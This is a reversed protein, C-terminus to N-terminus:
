FRISLAYYFNNHKLLNNQKDSENENNNILYMLANKLLFNIVPGAVGNLGFIFKVTNDVAMIAASRLAMSRFNQKIGDIPVWCSMNHIAYISIFDFPKIYMEPTFNIIAYKDWFGGYRINGRFSSVIDLKYPINKPESRSNLFEFEYFKKELMAERISEESKIISIKEASIDNNVFTRSSTNETNTLKIGQSYIEEFLFSDALLTLLMLIKVSSSYKM